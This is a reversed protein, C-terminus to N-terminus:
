ANRRAFKLVKPSNVVSPVSARQAMAHLAMAHLQTPAPKAEANETTSFKRACEACLAWGFGLMDCYFATPRCHKGPLPEFDCRPSNQYMGALHAVLRLTGWPKQPRGFRHDGELHEELVCNPYSCRVLSSANTM